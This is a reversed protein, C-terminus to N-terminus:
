TKKGEATLVKNRKKFFAELTKKAKKGEKVAGVVTQM